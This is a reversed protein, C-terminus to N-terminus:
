LNTILAKLEDRWLLLHINIFDSADKGWLVSSFRVGHSWKDEAVTASRENLPFVRTGDTQIHLADEWHWEVIMHLRGAVFVRRLLESNTPRNKVGEFPSEISLDSSGGSKSGSSPLHVEWVKSPAAECLITSKVQVQWWAFAQLVAVNKVAEAQRCKGFIQNFTRVAELFPVVFLTDDLHKASDHSKGTGQGSGDRPKPTKSKEKNMLDGCAQPEERYKGVLGQDWARAVVTKSIM